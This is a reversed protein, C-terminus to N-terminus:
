GQKLISPVSLEKKSVDAWLLAGTTRDQLWLPHFTTTVYVDCVKMAIMVAQQNEQTFM